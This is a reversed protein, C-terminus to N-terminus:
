TKSTSGRHVSQVDVCVLRVSSAFPIHVFQTRRTQLPQSQGREQQQQQLLLQQNDMTGISAAIMGQAYPSTTESSKDSNLLQLLGTAM